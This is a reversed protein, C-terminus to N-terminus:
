AFLEISVIHKQGFSNQGLDRSALNLLEIRKNVQHLVVLRDLKLEHREEAHDPGSLREELQHSFNEYARRSVTLENFIHNIHGADHLNVPQSLARYLRNFQEDLLANLRGRSMVVERSSGGTAMILFSWLVTSYFIIM